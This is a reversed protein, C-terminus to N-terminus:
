ADYVCYCYVVLSHIDVVGTVSNFRTKGFVLVWINQQGSFEPKNLMAVQIQFGSDTAISLICLYLKMDKSWLASESCASAMTQVAVPQQYYCSRCV